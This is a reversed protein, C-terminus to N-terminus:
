AYVDSSDRGAYESCKCNPTPPSPRLRNDVLGLRPQQYRSVISLGEPAVVLLVIISTVRYIM